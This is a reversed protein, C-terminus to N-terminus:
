CKESLMVVMVIQRALNQCRQVTISNFQIIIGEIECCTDEGGVILTFRLLHEGYVYGLQLPGESKRNSHSTLDEWSSPDNFLVLSLMQPQSYFLGTDWHGFFIILTSKNHTYEHTFIACQCYSVYWGWHIFDTLATKLPSLRQLIYHWKMGMLIKIEVGTGFLIFNNVICKVSLHVVDFSLINRGGCAILLWWCGLM